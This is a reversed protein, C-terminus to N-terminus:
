KIGNLFTPELLLAHMPTFACVFYMPRLNINFADVPHASFAVGM